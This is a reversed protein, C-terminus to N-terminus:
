GPSVPTGGLYLRVSQGEHEYPLRREAVDVRVGGAEFAAVLEELAFLTAAVPVPSGLFEDLHVEGEGEHFSALLRGGPALVRALERVGGVLQDRRLHILSYFAVIGAAAGARVPLARVDAATAADLRAAASAAMAISLDVGLIPRNGGLQEGLFAGVQGPGCGVDLVPGDGRLAGAFAALLERDRPKSSLEDVFRAEYDVAVADYSAGIAPWPRETM